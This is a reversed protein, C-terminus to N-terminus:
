NKDVFGCINNKCMIPIIMNVSKELLKYGLKRYLSLHKYYIALYEIEPYAGRQMKFEGVGASMNFKNSEQYSLYNLLSYINKMSMDYGLMPVLFNNNKNYFSTFGVLKENKELFKFKLFDTNQVLKFYNANYQPNYFSYKNLYLQEYLNKIIGEKYVIEDKIDINQKEAIRFERNIKNRFYANLNNKDYIFIQRSIIFNYNIKTLKNKLESYFTTNVNKIVIAYDPFKNKLFETIKDYPIDVQHFNTSLLYQNVYIVKDVNFSKFFINLLLFIFKLVFKTPKCKITKFEDIIYKIYHTCISTLLSDNNQNKSFVLPIIQKEFCLLKMEASVNDIYYNIENKVLEKLYNLTSLDTFSSFNLKSINNKDYIKFIDMFKNYDFIFFIKRLLM